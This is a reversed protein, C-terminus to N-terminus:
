QETAHGDRAHWRVKAPSPEVNGATDTARVSFTHWGPELDSYRTPSNCSTYAAGDLSCTFSASENASFSFWAADGAPFERSLSSSPPTTDKAIATRQSGNARGLM